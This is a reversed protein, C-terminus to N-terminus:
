DLTGYREAIDGWCAVRYRGRFFILTPAYTDGANLYTCWEGRKTQFSEAGFLGSDLADLCHLRIDSTSPANFCEAVRAAGAPMAELEARSAELIRRAEPAKDAFVERLTKVSPLRRM